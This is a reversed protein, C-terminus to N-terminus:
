PDLVSLTQVQWLAENTKHHDNTIFSAKVKEECLKNRLHHGDTGVLFELLYGKNRV